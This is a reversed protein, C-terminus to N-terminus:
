SAVEQNQQQTRAAHAQAKEREEREIQLQHEKKEFANLVDLDKEIDDEMTHFNAFKALSSQIFVRSLDVFHQKDKKRRLFYELEDDTMEMAQFHYVSEMYRRVAISIATYHANVGDKELIRRAYVEKMDEQFQEIPTLRVLGGFKDKGTISQVIKKFLFFGVVFLIALIVALIMVALLIGKLEFMARDPNTYDNPAAQELAPGLVSLQLTTTPVEFKEGSSKTGSVTMPQLTDIEDTLFLIEGTFTQNDQSVPAEVISYLHSQDENPKLKIENTRYDPPLIISFPVSLGIEPETQGIRIEVSNDASGDLKLEQANITTVFLLLFIFSLIVYKM